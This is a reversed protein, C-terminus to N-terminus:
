GRCRDESTLRVDAREVVAIRDGLWRERIRQLAAICDMPYGNGLAWNTLVNIVCRIEQPALSKLEELRSKIDNKQSGRGAPAKRGIESVNMSYSKGRRTVTRVSQYSAGSSRRWRRLTAEPVVLHRALEANSLRASKEHAIARRLVLQLDHKNRRMGHTANASYSDWQADTLNGSRIEAAIHKAGIREAAAVRQFGDSLWYDKGDFWVRVPPFDAGDEMLKAYETITNEEVKARSQTQGDRRILCVELLRNSAVIEPYVNSVSEGDVKPRSM